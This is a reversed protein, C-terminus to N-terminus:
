RLKGTNCFIPHEAHGDNSYFLRVDLKTHPMYDCRTELGLQITDLQWYSTNNLSEESNHFIQQRIDNLTEPSPSFTRDNVAILKAIVNRKRRNHPATSIMIALLIKLGWVVPFYNNTQALEYVICGETHGMSGVASKMKIMVVNKPAIVEDMDGDLKGYVETVGGWILYLDDTDNTITMQISTGTLSLRFPKRTDALPM